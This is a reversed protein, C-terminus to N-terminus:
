TRLGWIAELEDFLRETAAPMGPLENQALWHTYISILEDFSNSSALKLNFSGVYSDDNPDVEFEYKRGSEDFVLYDGSTASPREISRLADHRSRYLEFQNDGTLIARENSDTWSDAGAMAIREQNKGRGIVTLVKDLFPIAM